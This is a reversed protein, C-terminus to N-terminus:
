KPDFHTPLAYREPKNDSATHKRFRSPSRGTMRSFVSIFYNYDSFGCAEAVDSVSMDPREALLQRAKEIRLKRIRQAVGSSYLQKSLSYLQTKGIQLEQCLTQATIPETFHEYIYNDLRAAIRDEKLTAMKELTLYSAIAHLIHTASHFYDESILMTSDCARRLQEPPINFPRCCQEIAAYAEERSPYALAQGLILYGALTDKVYFPMIAEMLGAHCRYILAESQKAARRCAAQDCTRCAGEAGSARVLTCLPTNTGPVYTLERFDSDFVTIRIQTLEHFDRLLANLKDFDFVPRM